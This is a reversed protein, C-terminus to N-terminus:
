KALSPDWDIRTMGWFTDPYSEIGTIGYNRTWVTNYMAVAIEPGNWDRMWNNVGIAIEERKATDTESLFANVQEILDDGDPGAMNAHSYDAIYRPELFAAINGSNFINNNVMVDWEGANMTDVFTSQDLLELKVTFGAEEMMSVIALSYNEINGSANQAILSLERGDYSSESLLQKAREIDYEYPRIDPSYGFNVGKPFVGVPTRGSQFVNDAISQRDLCLNLAERAKADYWTANEGLSSPFGLKLDAYSTTEANEIIEIRDEAGEFLALVDYGIGGLQCYADVEGSIQAGAASTPETVLRIYGDEFYPDYEAKNWYDPSKTFHVSQGSIWEDIIWPGTGIHNMDIFMQDGMEQHAGMPIFLVRPIQLMFDPFSQSFTMKFTYDDIKEAGKLANFYNMFVTFEDKHAIGREINYVAVDANWDEGNQFKVGQRLTFTAETWSDNIEWSEALVGTYAGAHDSSILPEYCMNQVVNDLQSTTNHPDMTIVPDGTVVAFTRSRADASAADDPQTADGANDIDGANSANSADNAGGGDGTDDTGGSGCGFLTVAIFVVFLVSIIRKQKKMDKGRKPFRQNM